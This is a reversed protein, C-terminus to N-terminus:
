FYVTGSLSYGLASNQSGGTPDMPDSYVKRGVEAKIDLGYYNYNLSVNWILDDNGFVDLGEDGYQGISFGLVLIQEILDYFNLSCGANWGWRQSGTLMRSAGGHISVLNNGILEVFNYGLVADFAMADTGTVTNFENHANGVVLLEEDKGYLDNKWYFSARPSFGLFDFGLKAAGGMGMEGVVIDIISFEGTFDLGGINELSLDTKLTGIFTEPFSSVNRCGVNLSTFLFDNEYGVTGNVGWIHEVLPNSSTASAGPIQSAEIKASFGEILDNELGVSVVADTEDYKRDADEPDPDPDSIVLSGVSEQTGRMQIGLYITDFINRLKVFGSELPFPNEELYLIPDSIHKTNIVGQALKVTIGAQLKRNRMYLNLSGVSGSPDTGFVPGPATNIDADGFSYSVSGGVNLKKEASFSYVALFLILLTAIVIRKKM